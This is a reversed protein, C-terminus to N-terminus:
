APCSDKTPNPTRLDHLGGNNDAGWVVDPGSFRVGPVNALREMARQVGCADPHSAVRVIWFLSDTGAVEGHIAAFAAQRETPTAGPKFIVLLINKAATAGFWSPHVLNTDNMAWGPMDRPVTRAARRTASDQGVVPAAAAISLGLLWRTWSM